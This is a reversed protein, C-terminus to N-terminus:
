ECKPMYGLVTEPDPRVREPLDQLVEDIVDASLAAVECAYDSRTGDPNELLWERYDQKEFYAIAGLGVVAVTVVGCASM